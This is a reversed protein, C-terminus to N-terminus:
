GRPNFRLSAAAYQPIEGAVNERQIATPMM